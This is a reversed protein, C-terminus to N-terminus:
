EQEEKLALHDKLGPEFVHKEWFDRKNAYAMTAAPSPSTAVVVKIPAEAGGQLKRQLVKQSKTDDNPQLEGSACWDAFHRCFLTAAADGNSIVIRRLQPAQQAVFERIPNARPNSIDKDLSSGATRECAGVIDWLGFGHRVLCSVQDDYSLIKDAYEPRLAQAFKYPKGTSPSVGCDRRFGLCDGTM